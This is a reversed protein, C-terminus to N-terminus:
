ARDIKNLQFDVNSGYDATGRGGPREEEGPRGRPKAERRQGTIKEIADLFCKKGLPQGQDLALRIFM